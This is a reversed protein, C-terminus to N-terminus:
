RRYAMEVKTLAAAIDDAEQAGYGEHIGIIFHTEVSKRANPCCGDYDIKGGWFPCCWPCQSQGYTQRERIWKQDPVVNRYMGAGVGEAGLAQLYRDLPVTMRAQAYGFVLFWYSPEAGDIVKGPYVGKLGAIGRAIRRAVRRRGHAVLMTKKLQVRGIVAELETMRYNLGLFLNTSSDAGFPKGRDAFRKANLCYQENNTIVMGGQGGSTTHKGGMLSFCGMHGISGVLRGKYKAGHAQSCDEIVVLKRKRAIRMIPDMDCPQGAIHGCIIARTKATVREAVSAPDMNMTEPDADAFVPICNQMLIPAVAGVDTIPSSIVESGIDLRLAGLAAHIAATGSSMATACKVGYYKAFEREYADVHVGGYREFRQPGRTGAVMLEMVAKVERQDMMVRPPFPKTRVPKGGDIALGATRAPRTTRRASKTSRKAHSATPM